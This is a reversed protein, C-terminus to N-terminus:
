HLSHIRNNETDYKHQEDNGVNERLRRVLSEANTRLQDGDDPLM